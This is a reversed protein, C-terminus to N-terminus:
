KVEIEISAPVLGQATATFTVKGSKEGSKLIALALGNFAKRQSAKFSEMSTPNGNDVGAISADGSVTFQILNDANPIM